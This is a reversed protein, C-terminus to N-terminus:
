LTSNLPKIKVIVKYLVQSDELADFRITYPEYHSLLNINNFEGFHFLAGCFLFNVLLKSIVKM